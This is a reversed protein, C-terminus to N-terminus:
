LRVDGGYDGGYYDVPFPQKLISSTQVKNHVNGHKQITTTKSPQTIKQLWNQVNKKKASNDLKIISPSPQIAKPPLESNPYIPQPLWIDGRNTPSTTSNEPKIGNVLHSGENNMTLTQHLIQDSPLDEIDDIKIVETEYKSPIQHDMQTPYPIGRSEVM